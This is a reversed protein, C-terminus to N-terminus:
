KKPPYRGVLVVQWMSDRHPKEESTLLRLILPHYKVSPEVVGLLIADFGGM